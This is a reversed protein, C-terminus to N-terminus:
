DIEASVQILKLVAINHPHQFDESLNILLIINGQV